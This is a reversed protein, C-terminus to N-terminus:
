RCSRIASRPVTCGPGWANVPRGVVHLQGAKACPARYSYIRGAVKTMRPRSKVSLLLRADYRNSTRSRRPSVIWSSPRRHMPRQRAKSVLWWGCRWRDAMTPAGLISSCGSCKRRGVEPLRPSPSLLEITLTSLLVTWKGAGPSRWPTRRQAPSALGATPRSASSRERGMDSMGPAPNGLGLTVRRLRESPGSELRGSWSKSSLALTLNAAIDLM